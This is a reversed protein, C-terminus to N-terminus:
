GLGRLTPVWCRVSARYQRYDDGFREELDREEWPRVFLQWAIAGAAAYLLVLPSGLYLGVAAGQTLASVAMPNRVCRYPGTVVLGRPCALPLPTGRGAVALTVATAINAAGAALFLAIAAIRWGPSAFGPIGLAREAAHLLAPVLGFFFAWFLVAQVLTRALNVLPGAPAAERGRPFPTKM